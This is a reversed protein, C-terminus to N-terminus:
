LWDGTYGSKSVHHHMHARGYVGSASGSVRLDTFVSALESTADAKYPKLTDSAPVIKGDLLLEEDPMPQFQGTELSKFTDGFTRNLGDNEFKYIFSRDGLSVDTVRVPCSIARHVVTSSSSTSSKTKLRWLRTGVKLQNIDLTEGSALMEPFVHRYTVFGSEGSVREVVRDSGHEKIVLQQTKLDHSVVVGRHYGTELSQAFLVRNGEKPIWRYVSDVLEGVSSDSAVDDAIVLAM